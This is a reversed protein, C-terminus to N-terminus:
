NTGNNENSTPSNTRHQSPKRKAPTRRPTSASRKSVQKRQVTTELERQETALIHILKEQINLGLNQLLAGLESSEHLSAHKTKTFHCTRRFNGSKTYAITGLGHKALKKMAEICFETGGNGNTVMSPIIESSEALLIRRMFHIIKTDVDQFVGSVRPRSTQVVFIKNLMEDFTDYPCVTYTALVLKHKNFYETLNLARTVTDVDVCFSLRHFKSIIKESERHLEESLHIDKASEVNMLDDCATNFAKLVACFRFFIEITKGLM